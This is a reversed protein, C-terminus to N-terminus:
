TAEHAFERFSILHFLYKKELVATIVTAYQPLYVNTSKIGFGELSSKDILDRKCM